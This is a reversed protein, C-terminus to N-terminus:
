KGEPENPPSPKEPKEPPPPEDLDVLSVFEIDAPKCWLWWRERLARSAEDHRLAFGPDEKLKTDSFLACWSRRADDRKREYVAARQKEYDRESWIDLLDRKCTVDIKMEEIKHISEALHADIVELTVKETPQEEQNLRVDATHKLCLLCLIMAAITSPTPRFM